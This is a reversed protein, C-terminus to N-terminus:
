LLLRRLLPVLIEAPINPSDEFLAFARDENQKTRRAIIEARRFARAAQVAEDNALRHRATAERQCTRCFRRWYGTALHVLHMNEGFLPHNRKCYLASCASREQYLPDRKVKFRLCACRRCTRFGNYFRTNEETFEHGRKCHTRNKFHGTTKAVHEARTLAELHYPNICGPNDCKHHVDYGDPVEGVSLEYSMCHAPRASGSIAFHGYGSPDKKGAYGWCDTGKYRIIKSVFRDVDRWLAGIINNIPHLEIQESELHNLNQNVEM